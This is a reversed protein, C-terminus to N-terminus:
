STAPPKIYQPLPEQTGFLKHARIISQTNIWPKEIDVYEGVIPQPLQAVEKENMVRDPSVYYEGPRKTFVTAVDKESQRMADFTSIGKVEIGLGIALGHAAALSTRIGTFSGPGITILINTIDTKQANAEKLLEDLVSYFQTVFAFVDKM